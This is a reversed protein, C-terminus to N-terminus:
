DGILERKLFESGSIASDSRTNLILETDSNISVVKFLQDGASIVDGESLQTFQTGVGTLTFFQLTGDCNTDYPISVTGNLKNWEYFDNKKPTGPRLNKYKIKYRYNQHTNENYLYDCAYSGHYYIQPILVGSDSGDVETEIFSSVTESTITAKPSFDRYYVSTTDFEQVIDTNIMFDGNIDELVLQGSVNDWSKVTAEAGVKLIKHEPGWATNVM